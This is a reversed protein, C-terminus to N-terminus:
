KKPRVLVVVRNDDEELTAAVEKLKGKLKGRKYDQCLESANITSCLEGKSNIPPFTVMYIEKKYSYDDNYTIYNFFKKEQTDYAFYKRPFGEGTNFDYINTVSEMFYYRDSVLKLVLFSEPNMIHIPPTRVIFPRLNYDPMLTYITDSSPELLIWNGNFPIIRSYEGPGAARTGGEHRLLQLFLKKEKFPTRIEKTINGDQKSVLLFPIEQNCEDYCILNEKDYNFIEWYFQSDGETKQKLSRKFNGELDYVKIRKKYHDNIFIENNEEDLTVCRFNIYEEGGQGKRNIKRIAKGSRDYVFINGDNNYNAVIIYKEGVAQVYGQNIFEDNTELPIYEVDMFDQLVLEKKTSSSENVDVTIFEDTSSHSGGCGTVVFLITVGIFSFTKM